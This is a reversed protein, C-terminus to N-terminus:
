AITLDGYNDPDDSTVTAPVCKTPPSTLAVTSHWMPYQGVAKSCFPVAPTIPDNWPVGNLLVYKLASAAIRMAAGDDRRWERGLYDGTLTELGAYIAGELGAGAAATALTHRADRLTFYARDQKPYTGYDLVFGTFDDQWATVVFFLLKAQVDVFMTIHNCGIPVEGRGLRNIKNAVQDATMLDDETVEEPLPENQYEAFFAAEDQLRLNMAHQIASM